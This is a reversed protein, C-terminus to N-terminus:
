LAVLGGNLSPGSNTSNPGDDLFFFFFFLFFYFFFFFLINIFFTTLTPDVRALSELDACSILYKQLFYTTRLM